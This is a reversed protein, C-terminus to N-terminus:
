QKRSTATLSEERFIGSPRHVSSFLLIMWWCRRCGCVSLIMWDMGILVSYELDVSSLRIYVGDLMCISMVLVPIGIWTFCVFVPSRHGLSCWNDLCMGLGGGSVKVWCRFLKGIWSWLIRELMLMGLILYMKCEMSSPSSVIAHSPDTFFILCCVSVDYGIGCIFVRYCTHCYAWCGVM